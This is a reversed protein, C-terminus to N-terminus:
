IGLICSIGSCVTYGLSTTHPLPLLFVCRHGAGELLAEHVGLAEHVVKSPVPWFGVCLVPSASPGRPRSRLFDVSAPRQGLPLEAGPVTHGPLLPSNLRLERKSGFGLDLSGRVVRPTVVVDPGRAAGRFIAWPLSIPAESLWNDSCGEFPESSCLLLCSVLM